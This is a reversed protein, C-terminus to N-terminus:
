EIKWSLFLHHMSLVNIRKGYYDYISILFSLFDNEETKGQRTFLVPLVIKIVYNQVSALGEKELLSCDETLHICLSTCEFNPRVCARQLLPM